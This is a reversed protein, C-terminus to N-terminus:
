GPLASPLWVELRTGGDPGLPSHATVGGGMAACLEAVIALGLGTGSRRAVKRDSTFHPEFVNPLDEPAIGPGDDDVWVTVRPVPGGPESRVTISIRHRAFKGANEVLNALLQHLRDPDSVAWAPRGNTEVAAVLGASSLDPGLREVVATAVEVVDVPSSHLSFREAEFRALDLLDGVLRELRQAEADIVAVAGAVDDTTGDAIADAYGRISTLPTRLEHSVSLFFRRQQDRARTLRSSMTNIASALSAFEPMDHPHVPIETDLRGGAIHETAQAATVLPRSFRNALWFAVVGAALLCVLGLLAFYGLGGVPAQIHRTAVLVATDEYPIPPTLKAKQDTTLDLPILVYVQDGVTGAVSRDAALASTRLDLDGLETPLNDAFQGDASMGVVRLADYQGVYEVAQVDHLFVQPHSYDALAIAEDYLQQEATTASARHVLVLSGLAALLLTGAVLALIAAM